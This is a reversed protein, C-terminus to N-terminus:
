ARTTDTTLAAEQPFTVHVRTCGGGGQCGGERRHKALPQWEGEVFLFFGRPNRSLLRLAVETMEVLSPDRSLDREKEYKM